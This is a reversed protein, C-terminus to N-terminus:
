ISINPIASRSQRPARLGETDLEARRFRVEASINVLEILSFYDYPWNFGYEFVDNEVNLAREPHNLPLRDRIKKKFYNAQAKQKVKFVIWQVDEDLEGNNLLFSDERDGLEHFIANSSLVRSGDAGGFTDDGISPSVNQWIKALDDRTLTVSFEFLYMAFPEIYKTQPNNYKLFNFQPPINFELMSKVMKFISRRPTVVRPPDPLRDNSAPGPLTGGSRRVAEVDLINANDRQSRRGEETDIQYNKFGLNRVSQYVEDKPLKFFKREGNVTRFPIAVIAEKITRSDALQGVTQTENDIGLLKSLDSSGNGPIVRVSPRKRTRHSGTQHWVGRVRPLHQITKSTRPQDIDDYAVRSFDFTPCEFKSQIVISSRDPLVTGDTDYSQVLSNDSKLQLGNFSESLQMAHARNYSGVVTNFRDSENSVFGSSKSSISGTASVRRYYVIETDRAIEAITTYAPGDKATFTLMARAYGDYHPPLYPSFGYGVLDASRSFHTGNPHTNRFKGADFPIGFAAPNNYMPNDRQFSRRLGANLEIGMKYEKGVEPEFQPTDASTITVGRRNALFFDLCEAYFNSAAYSYVTKGTEKADSLNFVALTSGSNKALGFHFNEDTKYNASYSDNAVWSFSQQKHDNQGRYRRANTVSALISASPHPEVEYFLANEDRMEPTHVAPDIIAEFPVRTISRIGTNQLDMKQGWGHSGIPETGIDSSGTFHNHGYSASGIRPISADDTFNFKSGVVFSPIMISGTCTSYSSSLEVNNDHLVKEQYDDPDTFYTGDEINVYWTKYDRRNVPTATPAGTYSYGTETAYKYTYQAPNSVDVIGNYRQRKKNSYRLDNALSGTWQTFGYFTGTLHNYKTPMNFGDYSPASGTTNNIIRGTFLPQAHNFVHLGNPHPDLYGTDQGPRYWGIINNASAGLISYPNRPGLTDGITKFVQLTTGANDGGTMGEFKALGETFDPTTNVYGSLSKAMADTGPTNLIVMETLMFESPKLYDLPLDQSVGETAIIHSAAGNVFNTKSLGGAGTGGLTVTGNGSPGFSRQRITVTTSNVTATLLRNANLCTAINTATVAASGGIAYTPADTHTASTTGAHATAVITTGDTADFTITTNGASLSGNNTVQVTASAAVPTTGINTAETSDLQGDIHFKDKPDVDNLAIDELYGKDNADLDPRSNGHPGIGSNASITGNSLLTNIRNVYGLNGGIFCNRSGDLRPFATNTRGGVGTYSFFGTSANVVAAATFKEGNLWADFGTISGAGSNVNSYGINDLDLSLLVHNWGPSMAKHQNIEGSTSQRSISFYETGDGGSCIFGVTHRRDPTYGTGNIVTGRHHDYRGGLSDVGVYYGFHVGKKWANATDDSNGFSAICGKQRLAGITTGPWMDGSFATSYTKPLYMWFSVTLAKGSVGEGGPAYSGSVLKAWDSGGGIEIRNRSLKKDKKVAQVSEGSRYNWSGAETGGTDGRLSASQFMVGYQNYLRDEQPEIIPYDVAIGSKVTNFGIGPAYYPALANRWHGGSVHTSYSSSFETALQVMRDAPYFGRYPLFKKYARCRLIFEAPEVGKIEAMQEKVIDFDKLFDSNSYVKYFNEEASNSPETVKSGTINLFSDNCAFFPDAGGVENVYYNMHDSIKFEPVISYNKAILRSQESFNEFKDFKFPTSRSQDPIKFTQSNYLHHDIKDNKQYIAVLQKKPMQRFIKDYTKFDASSIKSVGINEGTEDGFHDLAGFSLLSHKPNTSTAYYSKSNGAFIQASPFSSTPNRSADIAIQESNFFLKFEDSPNTKKSHYITPMYINWGPENAGNTPAGQVFRVDVASGLGGTVYVSHYKFIPHGSTGKTRRHEDTALIKAVTTWNNDGSDRDSVGLQVYLPYSGSNLSDIERIGFADDTSSGSNGTRLHFNILVAKSADVLAGTTQIYRIHSHSGMYTDDNAEDYGDLSTNYAIPAGMLAIPAVHDEPNSGNTTANYIRPGTVPSGNEATQNLHNRMGIPVRGYDSYGEEDDVGSFGNGFGNSNPLSMTLAAYIHSLNHAAAAVPQNRWYPAVAFDSFFQAKRHITWALELEQFDGQVPVSATAQMPFPRAYLASPIPDAANNHFISYNAFLEGSGDSGLTDTTKSLAVTKFGDPADLPWVSLKPVTYGQSNVGNTQTREDRRNKWFDKASFDVRERTRELYTNEEKPFINIRYIAMSSRPRSLDFGRLMNNNFISVKSGDATNIKLLDTLDDSAFKGIVNQFSFKNSAFRPRNESDRVIGLLRIPQKNSSVPPDVFRFDTSSVDRSRVSTVKEHGTSDPWSYNGLTNTRVTTIRGEQQSTPPAYINNRAIHRGMQTQGVRLQKWSPYGYPGQRHLISGSLLASGSLTNTTTNTGPDLIDNVDSNPMNLGAFTVTYDEQGKRERGPLIRGRTGISASLFPYTREYKLSGTAGLISADTFSHLHGAIEVKRRGTNLSATIWAYQYDNQPIPHQVFANDRNVDTEGKYGDIPGDSRMAFRHRPNPNVKHNTPLSTHFFKIDRLGYHDLDSGATFTGAIWRVYIDETQGAISVDADHFQHTGADNAHSITLATQYVGSLGVKYQFFLPENSEPNNTLGFNQSLGADDAGIIYQFKIRVPTKIPSDYQVWRFYSRAFLLPLGLGVGNVHTDRNGKLALIKSSTDSSNHLVRPGLTETEDSENSTWGSPLTDTTVNGFNISLFPGPSRPDIGTQPIENLFNLPQRVTLNRYNLSNYVSYQNTERDLGHGGRSDGAVEPGGPSSFRAKFVTKRVPRAFKAFEKVGPIGRSVSSTMQELNDILFDKRQDESTYQVIDYMHNFNGLSISSTTSQINDINVPRKALPTRLVQASQLSHDVVPLNDSDIEMSTPPLVYLKSDQALIRFAEQRSRGDKKADMNGLLSASLDQHRHANGGVWRETFPSQLTVERDDGYEDSHLNTIDVGKKFKEHLNAQYGSIPDLSSSYLTFPAIDNVDMDRNSHSIDASAKVKHKRSPNIVDKCPNSSAESGTVAIHSIGHATSVGTFLRKKKNGFTNDGGKAHRQDEVSLRYPRSLKRVAYTSGSVFTNATKRIIERDPDVELTGSVLIDSNRQAREKTWLCHNNAGKDIPAHGHQWDYMLENIARIQGVPNPEKFDMSPYKMQFKNRELIHSEIVNRIDESAVVSAPVFQDIMISLSSDLWKYYDSFREIDPSNGIRDFFLQRLKALSKYDKRYREVPSGIINNFDTIGAFFNLMEDSIVGYMSKEFSFYFDTPKTERTFTEDDFGSINVMDGSRINEMPQLKVGSDYEMNVSGTGLEGFNIGQAPHLYKITEELPGGYLNSDVSGSSVDTIWMKGGPNSGSLDNFNWNIALTEIRPLHTGELNDLPMIDRGPSTVGYSSPDITHQHLEDNTLFTIWHRFNSIKVDSAQLLGGDFDTRHSGVYFRRSAQTFDDGTATSMSSSIIFQQDVVDNVSSFCSLEIFYPNTSGSVAMSDPNDRNRLRTRVAVQWRRSSYLDHIFPTEVPEFLNNRSTLVFKATRSDQRDKVAYVQFNAVDDTDRTWAHTTGNQGAANTRVAHCGFLSSSQPTDFYFRHGISHRAPFFVQAQTTSGAPLNSSGSVYGRTDKQRYTSPISTTQFVTADKSSDSNFNVYKNKITAPVYSSELPYVSDTSYVNMKILENDIGFCRFLNRFSRETGKSKYIDTLNNYINNYIFNKINHLKEKFKDEENRDNFINITDKDLFLEPTVLGLSELKVNNFPHPKFKLDLYKKNKVDRMDRIQLFLSDFYSAMIQTIKRLEHGNNLGDDDVIWDPISYYLSSNNTLDFAYGEELSSTTFAIVEPHTPYLIPDRFEAFSASSETIASGTHRADTAYGIWNGNSVRGSYDLVINDIGTDGTVGENFKYYVGLSANEINENAGAGVQHNYFRGVQKSNRSSKWFRFEDISGALKGYGRGPYQLRQVEGKIGSNTIISAGNTLTGNYGSVYDKIGGAGAADDADGMKFWSVINSYASFTTMELIKGTNYLETVEAASLEKDFIVVDAMRDEFVRNANSDAAGDITAGIAVASPSSKMCVYGNGHGAGSNTEDKTAATVSADTYLNIGSANGSGDYTAVVHHWTNSTLTVANAQARIADGSLSGGNDYLFMRIKGSAQKFLWETKQPNGGVGDFDAKSMFPGNDSAVNGVFVWASLSFPKDSTDDTFSYADQDSVTVCDNTGDFSIANHAVVPQSDSGADLDDKHAVLAGISGVMASRLVGVSSGTLSTSHLQGDVYSRVLVSSSLNQYTFSYHHWKDDSGSTYLSPEGVRVNKFGTSGSQYTLLFPSKSSDSSDLEVTLRGYKHDGEVSGTTTVDLIVERETKSAGAFSQKKMWFEVTNGTQGNIELNSSRGSSTHFVNGVNPGGKIYVYEKTAPNGYAGSISTQTGWSGGTHGSFKIYGTTRPYENEFLHTDFGSSDNFFKVKERLTGDYPYLQQIRKIGADYYEELSGYQVFEEPISFDTHSKVSIKDKLYQEIYGVSEVDDLYQTFSSKSETKQSGKGKGFLSRLSM